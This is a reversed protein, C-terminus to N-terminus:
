KLDNPNFWLRQSKQKEMAKFIIIIDGESNNLTLRKVEQLHDIFEEQTKHSPTIEHHIDHFSIYTKWAQDNTEHRLKQATPLITQIDM